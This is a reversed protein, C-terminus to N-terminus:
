ENGNNADQTEHDQDVLEAVVGHGLPESHTHLLEGDAESLAENTEASAFRIIPDVCDRETAVDLHAAFIGHVGAGVIRPFEHVVRAPMTKEDRNGPRRHINQERDDQEGRDVHDM